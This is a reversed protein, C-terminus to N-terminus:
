EILIMGQITGLPAMVNVRVRKGREIASTM